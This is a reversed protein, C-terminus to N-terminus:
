QRETRALFEGRRRGCCGPMGDRLMKQDSFVGELVGFDLGHGCEGALAEGSIKVLIREYKLQNMIRGKM